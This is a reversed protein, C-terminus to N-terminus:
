LKIRQGSLYGKYFSGNKYILMEGPNRNSIGADIGIIKNGFLPKIDKSPTHGVVIHKKNYFSLISDLASERFNIDTFYGRYWVPGYNQSLFIKEKNEESEILDKGVISGSFSQNIWNLTLKKELLEPSIGGHVFIIDNITLVVPKTRLWRGMVSNRSYLDSYTMRTISEVNRYKVNIYDLTSVLVMLEHNGLLVHVMGGAEVAQKELGFLHWLIETVREGRDFIDGLVVLHGKGFNWKLEHNIIGMAKLLNIYTNYEGHIDSIVGISDVKSYSQSNKLNLYYNYTLDEFSCQLNFLKKYEPFNEPTLFDQSLVNDKIWLVKLKHHSSFIYPGDNVPESYEGASCVTLVSNLSLIFSFILYYLKKKM